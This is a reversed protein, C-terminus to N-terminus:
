SLVALIHNCLHNCISNILLILIRPIHSAFITIDAPLIYAVVGHVRFHFPSFFSITDFVISSGSTVIGM